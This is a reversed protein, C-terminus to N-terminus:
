IIKCHHFQDLVIQSTPQGPAALSDCEHLVDSLVDMWVDMEGLNTARSFTWVRGDIARACRAICCLM